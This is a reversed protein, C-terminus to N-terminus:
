ERGGETLNVPRQPDDNIFNAVNAEREGHRIFIVKMGSGEVVGLHRGNILTERFRIGLARTVLATPIAQLAHRGCM